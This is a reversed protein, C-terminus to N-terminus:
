TIIDTEEIVFYAAWAWDASGVERADIYTRGNEERVRSEWPTPDVSEAEDETLGAHPDEPWYARCRAILKDKDESVGYGQVWELDGSEDMGQPFLISTFIKAM